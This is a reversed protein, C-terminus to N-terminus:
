CGGKEFCCFRVYGLGLIYFGLVEEGFGAYIKMWEFKELWM